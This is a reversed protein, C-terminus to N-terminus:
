SRDVYVVITKVGQEERIVVVPKQEPAARKKFFNIIAESLLNAAAGSAIGTTLAILITTSLPDFTGKATADETKAEGLSRLDPDDNWAAAFQEPSLNLTPDLAIQFM